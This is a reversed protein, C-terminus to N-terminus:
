RMVLLSLLSLSDILWERAKPNEEWYESANEWQLSIFVTAPDSALLEETASQNDDFELGTSSYRWERFTIVTEPFRNVAGPLLDWATSDGLFYIDVDSKDTSICRFDAFGECPEFKDAVDAQAVSHRLDGSLEQRVLLRDFTSELAIPLVVIMVVVFSRMKNKNSQGKVLFFKSESSKWRREFKKYSWDSLLVTVFIAAIKGLDSILQNSPHVLFLFTLLPWHWLYISYSRQGIWFLIKSGFIKHHLDDQDSSQGGLLLLAATGVVIPVTTIGPWTTSEAALSFGIVMIIAASFWAGLAFGPRVKRPSLFVLVAGTLFEWFRPVPSYFGFLAQYGLISGPNLVASLVPAILSIAWLWIVTRKLLTEPSGGLIKMAVFVILGFALYFQAEVGLSWTHLFINSRSDPDFYSGSSFLM